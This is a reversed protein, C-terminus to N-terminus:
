PKNGRLGQQYWERFSCGLKREKMQFYWFHYRFALILAICMVILSLFGGLLNLYFFHYMSYCLLGFAFLLMLWCVRLLGAQRRLIDTDTLNLRKKAAEFSESEVNKQPVMFKKIGNFLYLTFSKMRDWDSWSRINIIRSLVGGIRSESKSESKNKM